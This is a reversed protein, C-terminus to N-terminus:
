SQVQVNKLESDFSAEEGDVTSSSARAFIRLVNHIAAHCLTTYSWEESRPLCSTYPFSTSGNIPEVDANTKSKLQTPTVSPKVFTTRQRKTLAPKSINSKAFKDKNPERLDGDDDNKRTM